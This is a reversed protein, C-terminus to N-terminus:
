SPSLPFTSRSTRTGENISSRGRPGSIYGAYQRICLLADSITIERSGVGVFM